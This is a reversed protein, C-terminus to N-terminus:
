SRRKKVNNYTKLSQFGSELAAETIKMGKEILSGAKALRLSNIYDNLSM